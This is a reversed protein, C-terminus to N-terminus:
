GREIEEMMLRLSLSLKEAPLTALANRAYTLGGRRDGAKVLMLGRHLEIHTAFRPLTAPRAADARDQEVQARTDGLRSLLMSTFTRFRWEPVAFDSIQGDDSGVQDFIREGTELLELAASQGGDQAAVHALAMTANLSGLSPRDAALALAQQALTAATSLEAGEYALALAARGRVWIRTDLCGSRDAVAAATRYWRVAGDEDASPLTKGHVTLLKAAATWLEPSDLKTQLVILDCALKGQMTAAGLQMYDQGYSEVREAWADVDPRPAALVHEYGALIGSMTAASVAGGLLGALLSRRDVGDGGLVRGYADIVEATARRVGTEVQSLYGTSFHTEAALKTLSVNSGTRLARLTAGWQNGAVEVAV